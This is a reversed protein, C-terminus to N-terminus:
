VKIKLKQAIAKRTKEEINNDIKEFIIKKKYKVELSLRILYDCFDPNKSLLPGHM